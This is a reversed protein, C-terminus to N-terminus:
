SLSADRVVAVDILAVPVPSAAGGACDAKVDADQMLDTYTRPLPTDDGNALLAAIHGTLAESASAVAEEWSDGSSTCGPLDPFTVGWDSGDVPAHILAIYRASM